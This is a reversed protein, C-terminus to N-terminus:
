CLFTMALSVNVENLTFETGHCDRVENFLSIGREVRFSVEHRIAEGKPSAIVAISDDADMQPQM